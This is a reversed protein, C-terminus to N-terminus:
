DPWRNGFASSTKAERVLEEYYDMVKRSVRQWSYDPAKRRGQAGLRARLAADRLLHLLTSALAEVDQPAVLLGDVGDSIVSSYGDIASAVIPKGAAMAELLVIGFSEEGTAPACYIDATAYYQAKLSEPVYGVFVVDKLGEQSVFRESSERLRGAGGVILRCDAFQEKVQAFAQLLYTLGKRKELRTLFLINLKSDKYHSLPPVDVSFQDVDIGNPIIKYDAPFFKSIFSEAPQSVAIRGDLRRFWRRLFRRGYRYARNREHFSHFTGVNIAKSYRLFTVPLLPVLPEHLHVIDFEERALIRKVKWSVRPSLAIRAISGYIPVPVPRGISIFKTPSNLIEPSQSSPALIRVDHGMTSFNEALRSVHINVGGPYAYDYPSVLAIKM